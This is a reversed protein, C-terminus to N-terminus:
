FASAHGIVASATFLLPQFSFGASMELMHLFHSRVAVFIRNQCLNGLNSGGAMGSIVTTKKIFNHFLLIVLAIRKHNELGNQAHNLVSLDM